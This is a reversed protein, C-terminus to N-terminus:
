DERASLSATQLELIWLIILEFGIREYGRGELSLKIDVSVYDTLLKM